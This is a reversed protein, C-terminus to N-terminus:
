QSQMSLPDLQSFLDSAKDTDNPAHNSTVLGHSAAEFDRRTYRRSRPSHSTLETLDILRDMSLETRVAPSNSSNVNVQTGPAVGSISQPQGGDVDLLDNLNNKTEQELGTESAHKCESPDGPCEPQEETVLDTGRPSTVDKDSVVWKDVVSMLEDIHVTQDTFLTDVPNVLKANSAKASPLSKTENVNCNTSIRRRPGVIVDRRAVTEVAANAIVRASVFLQSSNNLAGRRQQCLRGAIDLIDPVRGLIEAHLIGVSAVVFIGSSGAGLECVVAIPRLLNRQQKYYMHVHNIFARFQEVSTDVATGANSPVVASSLSGSYTLHVLSRTQNTNMNQITLIRETWYCKSNDTASSTGSDNNDRSEKGFDKFAQLRIELASGPISLRSGVKNAPLHTPIHLPDSPDGYAGEGSHPLHSLASFPSSTQPYRSPPLFVMVECGEAMIMDWFDVITKALPAQAIIYRPCWDGFNNAFDIRSANIYDNKSSELVVRNADYPVYEQRRNRSACCLAAAVTPKKGGFYPCNAYDTAVSQVKAWARELRSIKRAHVSPLSSTPVPTEPIENANDLFTLLSETATIFRNLVLPDSLPEPPEPSKRDGRMPGAKNSGPAGDPTARNAKSDVSSSLVSSSHSSKGSHQTGVSSSASLSDSSGPIQSAGYTARLREERRQAELDAKTLVQPKLPTLCESVSASVINSNSQLQNPFQPRAPLVPSNQQPVNVTQPSVPATPAYVSSQLSGSDFRPRAQNSEVFASPQSYQPQVRPDPQAVFRQASSVNPTASNCGPQVFQPSGSPPQQPIHTMRGQLQPQQLQSSNQPPPNPSPHFQEATGRGYVPPGRPRSAANFANHAPMASYASMHTTPQPQISAPHVPQNQSFPPIPRQQQLPNVPAASPYQQAVPQMSASQYPQQMGSLVPQGPTTYPPYQVQKNPQYPYARPLGHIPPTGSGLPQPNQNVGNAVQNPFVTQLLQGPPRSAQYAPISGYPSEGLRTPVSQFEMRQSPSGLASPAFVSTPPQTPQISPRFPQQAIAGSSPSPIYAGTASPRVSQSVAPQPTYFPGQVTNPPGVFMSAQQNAGPLRSAVSVLQQEPQRNPPVPSNLVTPQHPMSPMTSRPQYLGPMAVQPANQTTMVRPPAPWNTPGMGQGAKRMSAMYEGLTRIQGPSSSSVPLRSSSYAQTTSTPWPPIGAAVGAPVAGPASRNYATCQSEEETLAKKLNDLNKHLDKLTGRVQDYFSAGKICKQQLDDFIQGSLVLNQLQESRKRRLERLEAAKPAFSANIDILASEINEQASLNQRLLGICPDFKKLRETFLDDLSKQTPDTTLLDSTIDDKHLAQRLQDVFDIRQQRMEDVKGFLRQSERQTEIVSPDEIISKVTALDNAIEDVPRNLSKLTMLHADLVEQLRVDSQGAQQVTESVAQHRELVSQLRLRLEKVIDNPRLCYLADLRTKLEGIVVSMGNLEGTVEGNSKKLERMQVALEEDPEHELTAIRACVDYLEQPLPPDPALMNKPDLIISTMFTQIATDKEEVEATIGRLLSAKRESYVSAAELTKMPVLRQFVDPGRIEPDNHDFPVGKVLCAPKVPELSERPPVTEHYIFDNDKVLSTLKTHIVDSVFQVSNRLSPGPSTSFAADSDRLRKVIKDTETIHKEACQYWAIAIGYHEEKEQSLGAHYAMLAAYYRSKVECRALLDEQFRYPFTLLVSEAALQAAVQDYTESLYQTLKATINAPRNDLVSKEVICEQAQAMMVAGMIKVLSSRLDNFEDLPSYREIITNMAWAACQFHTCAVKMTDAEARSEKAGLISHLAAINFLISAEEFRISDCEYTSFSFADCWTWVVASKEEPSFRFRGKALQLQAYYRKQRSLGTYDISPEAAAKRAALFDSFEKKYSDPTAQYNVRIDNQMPSLDPVDASKKLPISIMSIRPLADM